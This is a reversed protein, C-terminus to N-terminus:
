AKHNCLWHSRHEGPLCGDFGTRRQMVEGLQPNLSHSQVGWCQVHKEFRGSVRDVSQHSLEGRDFGVDGQQIETVGSKAIRGEFLNGGEAIELM